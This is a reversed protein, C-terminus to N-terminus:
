IVSLSNNCATKVFDIVASKPIIYKKGIKISKILGQKLLTYVSNRGIQLMSQIDDIRVVDPYDAFMERDGNMYMVM